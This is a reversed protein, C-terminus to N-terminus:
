NATCQYCCRPFGLVPRYFSAAAITTEFKFLLCSAVHYSWMLKAKERITVTRWTRFTQSQQQWQVVSMLMFVVVNMDFDCWRIIPSCTRRVFSPMVIPIVHHKSWSLSWRAVWFLWKNSFSLVFLFFLFFVFPSIFMASHISKSESLSLLESM